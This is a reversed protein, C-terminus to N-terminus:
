LRRWSQTHSYYFCAPYKKMDKTTTTKGSKLYFNYDALLEM